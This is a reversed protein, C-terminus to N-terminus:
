AFLLHHTQDSDSQHVLLDCSFNSNRLDGHLNVTVIKHLLQIGLCEGVQHPHGIGKSKRARNLRFSVGAGLSRQVSLPPGHEVWVIDLKMGSYRRQLVEGGFCEPHDVFHKADGELLDLSGVLSQFLM